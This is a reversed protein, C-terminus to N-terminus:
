KGAQEIQSLQRETKMPVYKAPDLPLVGIRKHRLILENFTPAVYFNGGVNANKRIMSEAASVFDATRRFWFAGATALHSIPKQQAAEVVLGANGVKVYSYRPHISRFTLAGADLDQARFQELIPGFQVDVLENASVILLENDPELQCAALLATCASGKTSEKVEVIRATPALLAAVRDLYFKKVDKGLFAFTYDGGCVSRMNGVIREILSTGEIETLCLPYGGDHPDFAIQGAALVLINTAM